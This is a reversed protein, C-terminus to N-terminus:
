NRQGHLWAEGADLTSEAKAIAGSSAPKRRNDYKGEVLKTVSDPRIVFWEFDAIWGKDGLGHCFDSAAAKAIADRWHEAWAKDKLRLKLAKLRKPTMKCSQEMLRNWEDLIESHLGSAGAAIAADGSTLIAQSTKALSPYAEGPSPKALSPKALDRSASGDAIPEAISEATAVSIPEAIALGEQMPPSDVASYESLFDLKLKTLKLKVWQECHEPWDHVRLRVGPTASKDIWGSEVLATVFEDANGMWECARAIAGDRHKGIDGQPAYQSTFDFLLTLMGIAHSRQIDLRSAFDLMKPHNLADRKM